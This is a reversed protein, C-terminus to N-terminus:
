LYGHERYWHITRRIGEDLSVKPQYGLERKAKDILFARHDHFFALRRPFIPPEIRLPRCVKECAHALIKLPWLPVQLKPEPVGAVRAITRVYDKISLYGEGALIYIQGNAQPVEAALEVGDLIDDIYSPHYLSTCPGLYIFQRKLISRFLKM